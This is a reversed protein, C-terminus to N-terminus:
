EKRFSNYLQPKRISDYKIKYSKWQFLSCDSTTEYYDKLSIKGSHNLDFGAKILIEQEEKQIEKM